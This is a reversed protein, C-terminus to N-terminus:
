MIRVIQEYLCIDTDNIATSVHMHGFIHKKFDTSAKVDDLYDTLVDTDYLGVGDMLYLESTSPSHTIICDVKNGAKQLNALGNEMEEKSPLEEEWWSLGKVRYMCKGQRDLANAKKRWDPDEYDLIGDQIDHSSAGGFAFFTKGEIEFIEGRMLHLVHPRIEHVKGGHWEKVPYTALRAHNEHNGDVFVTTFPKDELWNLWYCENATEEEKAWVLGFDGCIIVTNDDKNGSFEKQEYFNNTAFRSPEGHIDGTIWIAM